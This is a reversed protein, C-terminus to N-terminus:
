KQIQSCSFKLSNDTELLLHIQKKMNVYILWGPRIYTWSQGYSRPSRARLFSLGQIWRRQFLLCWGTQLDFWAPIEMAWHKWFLSGKVEFCFSFDYIKTANRRWCSTGAASRSDEVRRWTRGTSSSRKAAATRAWLSGAWWRKASWAAATTSPSWFRSTRCSSSRWRSSSPRRTSPTPSDAVCRRRVDLSRRVSRTWCLWDGMPIQVLSSILPLPLSFFYVCFLNTVEKKTMNTPSFLGRKGVTCGSCERCTTRNTHCILTLLKVGHESVSRQSSTRYLQTYCTNLWSDSKKWVSKHVFKVQHHHQHFLWPIM